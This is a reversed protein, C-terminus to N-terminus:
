RKSGWREQTEGNYENATKTDTATDFQEEIKDQIVPWMAYLLTLILAVAIITVVTMSLEGSAEKM